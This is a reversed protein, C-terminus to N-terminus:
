PGASPPTMEDRDNDAEAGVKPLADLQVAEVSIVALRKVLSWM